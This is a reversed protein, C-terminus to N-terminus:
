TLFAVSSISLSPLTRSLCLAHKLLHLAACCARSSVGPVGGAAICVMLSALGDAHALDEPLSQLWPECFDWGFLRSQPYGGVVDDSAGAAMAERCSQAALVPDGVMHLVPMLFTTIQSATATHLAWSLTAPLVALNAAAEGCHPRMSGSNSSMSNVAADMGVLGFAMSTITALAADGPARLHQVQCPTLAGELGADRTVDDFSDPSPPVLHLPGVCSYQAMRIDSAERRKDSVEESTCFFVNAAVLDVLRAAAADVGVGMVRQSGQAHEPAEHMGTHAEPVETQSMWSPQMPVAEREMTFSARLSSRKESLMTLVNQFTQTHCSLSGPVTCPMGSFCHHCTVLLWAAMAADSAEATSIEHSIYCILPQLGVHLFCHAAM